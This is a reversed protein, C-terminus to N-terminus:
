WCLLFSIRLSGLSGGRLSLRSLERKAGLLGLGGGLVGLAGSLVGDLGRGVKNGRSYRELMKLISSPLQGFVKYDGSRWPHPPFSSM